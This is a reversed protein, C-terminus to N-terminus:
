PWCVTRRSPPSSRLTTLALELAFEQHLIDAVQTEFAAAVTRASELNARFEESRQFVFWTYYIGAQVLLVPVLALLLLLLLWGQVGQFFRRLPRHPARPPRHGNQGASPSQSGM